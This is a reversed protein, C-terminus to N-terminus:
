FSYTNAELQAQAADLAAQATSAGTYAKFVQAAITGAANTSGKFTPVHGIKGSALIQQSPAGARLAAHGTDGPRLVLEGGVVQQPRVQDPQRSRADDAHGDGDGVPALAVRGGPEQLVEVRRDRRRHVDLLGRQSRGPQRFVGHQEARDVESPRKHHGFDDEFTIANAAQGHAMTAVCDDWTFTISSPFTYPYFRAFNELAAVNAPSNITPTISEGNIDWFQGGFSYLHNAFEHYIPTTTSAQSVCGYVNTGSGIKQVQDFYDDWTVPQPLQVANYIDTRYFRIMVPTNYPLCFVEGQPTPVGPLVPPYTAILDIPTQLFDDLNM